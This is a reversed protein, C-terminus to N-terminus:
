TRRSGDRLQGHKSVWTGECRRCLRHDRKSFWERWGKMKFTRGCVKCQKFRQMKKNNFIWHKVEKGHYLLSSAVAMSADHVRKWEQIEKFIEDGHKKGTMRALKNFLQEPYLYKKRLEANHKVAEMNCYSRKDNHDRAM